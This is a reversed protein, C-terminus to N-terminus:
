LVSASNCRTRARNYIRCAFCASAVLLLVSSASPEPVPVFTAEYVDLSSLSPGSVTARLTVSDIMVSGSLMSLRVTGQRDQWSFDSQCSPTLPPTTMVGFCIPPASVSDEFMEYRLQDGANFTSSNVTFQFFGNPNNGFAPVSGTRPLDNFPYTWVEGSNLVLQSFAPLCVALAAGGSLLAKKM